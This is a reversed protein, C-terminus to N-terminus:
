FNLQTFSTDFWLGNFDFQLNPPTFDGTVWLLHNRPKILSCFETTMDADFAILHYRNRRLDEKAMAAYLHQASELSPKMVWIEAEPVKVALKNLKNVNCDGCEIWLKPRLEYDLQVLDPVFPINDSHLNTEIQLRERFFLLYALFKLAVHTVTETDHRGIIIKPPLARHRDQSELHFSFKASM